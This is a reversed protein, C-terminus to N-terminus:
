LRGLCGLPTLDSIENRELKLETAAQLAAMVYPCAGMRVGGADLETLAPLNELGLGHVGEPGLRPNCDVRLTSLHALRPLLVLRAAASATSAGAGMGEAVAGGLRNDHLLLVQLRTNSELGSVLTLRNAYLRLERLDVLAELGEVTVLANFSLDLVRLKVCGDLGASSVLGINHFSLEYLESSNGDDGARDAILEPTISMAGTPASGSATPCVALALEEGNSLAVGGSFVLAEEGAFPAPRQM